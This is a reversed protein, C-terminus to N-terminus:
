FKTFGEKLNSLATGGIFYQRETMSQVTRKPLFKSACHGMQEQHFLQQQLSHNLYLCNETDKTNIMAKEDLNQGETFM